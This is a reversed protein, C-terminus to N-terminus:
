VKERDVKVLKVHKASKLNIMKPGKRIKEAEYKGFRKFHNEGYLVGVANITNVM